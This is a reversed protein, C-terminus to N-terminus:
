LGKAKGAFVRHHDRLWSLSVQQAEIWQTCLSFRLQSENCTRQWEAQHNIPTHRKLSKKSKKRGLRFHGFHLSTTLSLLYETLFLV